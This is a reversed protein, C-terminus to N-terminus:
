WLKDLIKEYMTNRNEELQAPLLIDVPAVFCSYYNEFSSDRIGAVTPSELQQQTIM